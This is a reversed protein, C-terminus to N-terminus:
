VSMVPPVITVAASVYLPSTRMSPSFTACIPLASLAGPAFFILAAPLYTM